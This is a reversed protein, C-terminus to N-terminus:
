KKLLQEIMKRQEDIQNQQVEMKKNQEKIAEILLPVLRAYDVGKYGDIENVAEPIIKEVNQALLGIQRNGQFHNKPFEDARMEYEVGNIQLLKQLASQIATINQKFREDSAYTTGNAWISGNVYLAYPASIQFRGAQTFVGFNDQTGFSVMSGPNDCHLRLENGYVGIGVEGAGGPYLLIKEGLSAPFSLPKVPNIVGAMGMNGNRLITLANSRSLNGSGNGIQFIRDTSAEVAPNPADTNDNYTGLSTAMKAKAFVSNGIATSIDGTAFAFNGFAASTIGSAQTNSGAAFSMNGIKDKDWSDNIINGVRFSAKDAYWMMRNGAGSVPTNGPTVPLNAPATFLVSSDAVHLRAAPTATGIGANGNGKIRMRESFSASNGYGFAIDDGATASHVQLLQNSFIGFGFHLQSPNGDDYLSIKDGNNTNFSLPFRPNTTSIGMNSNRLVTLANSRSGVSIGNGIQFIRDTSAPFGPSPSDSIDNLYGISVSGAAMATTTFGMATSYWGSATTTFGMATSYNASATTLGGMATSSTGSAVTSGGMATSFNGIAGTNVGMAVSSSGYAVNDRGLAVSYNGINSNDWGTNNVYGVRFAAKDPYWMMRRGGGQVPTLGPTVPIDGSASFLVSSDAVHLRAQPTSTGIGTNGNKLIVMADSRASASTDAGNGVVLLRDATNWVSIGAPSYDTNCSGVVTERFSRALLGRGITTSVNGSAINTAGITTSYPGSAINNYGMATSAFGSAINNYGMATSVVGSAITLYGFASSTNGSANTSLGLAISNDGTANNTNGAAFSSNGIAQNNNGFATSYLGVSDRDWSTTNVYGARFAAKDSYWMMRRGAGSVPPNGPTASALGTASFLVSSDTVHLRAQPTTTGIGVNQAVCFLYSSVFVPLLFIKKM